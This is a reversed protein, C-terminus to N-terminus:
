EIGRQRDEDDVEARLGVLERNMRAHGNGDLRAEEKGECGIAQGKAPEQRRNEEKMRRYNEWGDKRGPRMMGIQGVAWRSKERKQGSIGVQGLM